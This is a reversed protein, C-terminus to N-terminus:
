AGVNGSLLKSGGITQIQVMKLCLFMNVHAVQLSCHKWSLCQIYEKRHRADLLASRRCMPVRLDAKLKTKKNILGDWLYFAAM